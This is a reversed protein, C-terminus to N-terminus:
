ESAALARDLYEETDYISEIQDGEALRLWARIRDRRPLSDLEPMLLDTVRRREGAVELYGALDLLRESRSPSDPPTLRLAHEALIVGQQAAGRESAGTAAAAVTGALEDDPLRTALAMHLARLEADAVVGALELHLERREQTRARKLAAAALLPHSPRVRDGDIALVGAEAADEVAISDTIAALQPVRLDASLAVALLLRRVPAELQAVRTGMLDDVADPIPLDEALGPPGSAALTRGVELAFLPNGLTSEHVRRLVHRPLSLELREALMRRLAGISLPSVEVRETTGLAREVPSAAGPRRAFLFAVPDDDLRPAAFALADGSADDLWQVDDVAILLPERSALTRLTNLLGLSIAHGEPPTGSAEVRFLAVDLAHRQPRPLEALEEDGVEDLLDILAAFSLRTEAGSGRASLVRRGRTRATELTAEWLATKGIGPRGSLVLARRAPDTLFEDLRALETERGVLQGALESTTEPVDRYRLYCVARSVRLRAGHRATTALGPPPAADPLRDGARM